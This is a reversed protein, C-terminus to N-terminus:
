KIKYAVLLLEGYSSSSPQAESTSDGPHTVDYSTTSSISGFSQVGPSTVVVSSASTRADCAASTFTCM